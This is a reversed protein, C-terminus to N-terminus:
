LLHDISLLNYILSIYNKHSCRKKITLKMEYVHFEYKM